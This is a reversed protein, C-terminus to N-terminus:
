DLLANPSVKKIVDNTLDFDQGHVHIHLDGGFSYMDRAAITQNGNVSTNSIQVGSAGAAALVNSDSATATVDDADATAVIDSADATAIIDSAGATAIVDSAGARALVNSDCATAIVDSTGATGIVDSDGATDIVDNDGSKAIVDRDGPTAIDDSDGATAIVDDDGATAIVDDDGATAIDDDDSATAIVDSGSAEMLCDGRGECIANTNVSDKTDDSDNWPLINNSGVYEYYSKAKWMNEIELAKYKLGLQKLAELIEQRTADGGKTERWYELIVKAMVKTDKLEEKTEDIVNEKVAQRMRDLDSGDFLQKLLRRLDTRRLKGIVDAIDDDTLVQAGVSSTNYRSAWKSELIVASHKLDLHNLADLIKQRTAGMGNMERWRQLIIMAEYKPDNMEVSKETIISEKVSKRIGDLDSVQFLEELLNKLNERTLTGVVDAIDEDSVVQRRHNQLPKQEKSESEREGENELKRTSSDKKELNKIILYLDPHGKKLVELFSLYSSLPKRILAEILKDVKDASTPQNRIVDAEESTLTKTSKMKKLIINTQQSNLTTKLLSLQVLTAPKERRRDRCRRAAIRNREQRIRKREDEEDVASTDQFHSFHFTATKERRRDRCRRAAIRNRERRIRKREEEDDVASTDQVLTATEERRRDRFRAVAIRNREQRLRTREEEDDVASTDQVLTSTEEQRRHRFRAAAVRNRERRIRKREEEDDVSTNECSQLCEEITLFSVVENESEREQESDYGKTDM